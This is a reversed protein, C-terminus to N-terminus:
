FSGAIRKGFRTFFGATEVGADRSARGIAVGADSARMWASREAGAAQAHDPAGPTFPLREGLADLSAATPLATGQTVPSTELPRDPAPLPPSPTAAGRTEELALPRSAAASDAGRGRGTQPVPANRKRPGAAARNWSSAREGPRGAAVPRGTAVSAAVVLPALATGDPPAAAVGALKTVALACSMFLVVAAAAVVRWPRAASIGSTALIRQVRRRLRSPPIAALGCLPRAPARPVAALAALCAAYGRASGTARVAVQDCAVEREFDLERDLWWAAPHWGVVIRLCQQVVQAVDDRRQVHAWEHVLLRDLDDPGLQEVLTPTVAVVPAGCGLVAAARVRNTLVVPTPRGTEHVDSWIPLRALVDRPCVRAHRRADRVALAGIVFRVAQWVSWLLWLGVAAIPSTWWAFPLTILAHSSSIIAQDGPAVRIPAVAMALPVAPLLLLVLYSAWLLGYRAEPRSPPIARVAAAAAIALIVGQALWNLLLDM